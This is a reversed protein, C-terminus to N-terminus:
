PLPPVHFDAPPLGAEYRDWMLGYAQELHRTFRLTDFLPATMRMRDLRQRLLQRQGNDQALKLALLEYSEDSVTVLAPLGVAHLLSAAVRAAFGQGIRTVVPTGMWLADSTTTHGTYPFTDLCLDILRYRALHHDLPLANAFCLRHPSIGAAAAERRLNGAALGKPDYLWLVSDPVAHLLRMWIAFMVPNLKHPAHLAGFTLGTPPLGLSHRDPVDTPLPRQRDNVQYCDPLIAVSETYFRRDGVPTVVPDGIIYDIPGGGLTGPYGLYSVQVPALRRSLLDIRGGATYGKLDILIDVNQAQAWAAIEGADLGALDHFSDVGHRIRQRMNSGDDVGYSGALVRFQARDHTELLGAILNATAHDHFDASLYALTLPRNHQLVGRVINTRAVPTLTPLGSSIQSQFLATAACRQQAPDAGILQMLLPLVVGGDTDIRHLLRRRHEDWSQWDAMSLRCVLAESDAVALAPDSRFARDFSQAALAVQGVERRILGLGRWAMALDPRLALACEFDRSADDPRDLRRMGQRAAISALNDFADKQDPLLQAVRQFLGAARDDQGQAVLAAALLYLGGPNDPAQALIHHCLTEADNFQGQRYAAFAANLLAKPDTQSLANRGQGDDPSPNLPHGDACPSALGWNM